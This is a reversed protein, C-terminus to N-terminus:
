FAVPAAASFAQVLHVFVAGVLVEVASDEDAAGVSCDLVEM